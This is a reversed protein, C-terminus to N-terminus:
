CLSEVPRGGSREEVGTDSGRKQEEAGRDPLAEIARRLHRVTEDLQASIPTPGHGRLGQTPRYLDVSLRDLAREIQGVARVLHLIAADTGILHAYPDEPDDPAVNAM